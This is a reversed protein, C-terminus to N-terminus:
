GYAHKVSPKLIYYSASGGASSRLFQGSSSRRKSM